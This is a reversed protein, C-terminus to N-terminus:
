QAQMFNMDLFELYKKSEIAGGSAAFHGGGNGFTIRKVFKECDFDLKNGQRVELVVLEKAHKFQLFIMASIEPYKEKFWEQSVYNQKDGLVVIFKDYKYEHYISKGSKALFYNGKSEQVKLLEQYIKKGDAEQDSIFDQAELQASMLHDTFWTLLSVDNKFYDITKQLGFHLYLVEMKRLPHYNPDNFNWVDYESCKWVFYHINEFTDEINEQTKIKACIYLVWSYVLYAASVSKKGDEYFSIYFSITTNKHYVNINETHYENVSDNQRILKNTFDTFNHQPNNPLVRFQDADKVVEQLTKLASKHHDIIMLNHAFDNKFDYNTYFKMWEAPPTVDVFIINSYKLIFNEQEDIFSTGSKEYNYPIMKLDHGYQMLEKILIASLFGDMDKCHYIIATKEPVNAM